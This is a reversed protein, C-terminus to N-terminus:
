NKHRDQLHEIEFELETKKHYWKSILLRGLLFIHSREHLSIQTQDGKVANSVCIVIINDLKQLM